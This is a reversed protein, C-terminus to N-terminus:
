PGLDGPRGHGSQILRMVRDLLVEGQRLAGEVAAHDRAQRGTVAIDALAALGLASLWLGGYMGEGVTTDLYQQAREAAAVAGAPDGTWILHDARCGGAVLAVQPDADWSSDLELLRDGVDPEDMAVAAYCGVAALRAAAADPPEGLHDTASAAASGALDGVAYLSVALLIRLEVGHESWRLGTDSVRGLAARLVPLSGAVDGNYYHLCALTYHGRLEAAFEGSARALSIARRLRKGADEVDGATEDLFAATVLADIEIGTAGADHAAAIAHPVRDRAEATRRDALLARVLMVEATAVAVPSRGPQRALRMADESQAVAHDTAEAVILQRVLEARARVGAEADETADSLRVALSAWEIARSREGALGAARSARTALEAHSMGAAETPVAVVPWLALSRELQLLAEAPALVEMADGAARVSWTLARAADQTESWHHAIEAVHVPDTTGSGSELTAAYAAHLRQREGPLLDHRMADRMLDHTLAYGVGDTTLVGEGLAERLGVDVVEDSVRDGQAVVRRLVPDPVPPSGVAVARVLDRATSSLADVRGVLLDTLAPPVARDHPGTALAAVFYPNGGTRRMVEAAAAPEVAGGGAQALYATVETQTFPELDLRSVAAIRGVESLWQRVRSQGTAADTRVTAIVALHESAMRRLLFTLFAASSSDMWHVDEIVFVVPRDASGLTGLLGVMADYSQLPASTDGGDLAAVDPTVEYGATRIARVLDMLVLHPLGPEGVDVCQARLILASDEGLEEIAAQVLRSKGSGAAGALLVASPRGDAASSVAARLADLEAERGVLPVEHVAGTM